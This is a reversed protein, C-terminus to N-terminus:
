TNPLSDSNRMQFNDQEKLEDPCYRPNRWPGHATVTVLFAFGKTMKEKTVHVSLKEKNSELAKTSM